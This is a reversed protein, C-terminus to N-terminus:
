GNIKYKACYFKLKISDNPNWTSAIEPFSQFKYLFDDYYYFNLYTPAKDISLIKFGDKQADICEEFDVDLHKGTTYSFAGAFLQSSILSFIFLTYKM